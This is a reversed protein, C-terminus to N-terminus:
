IMVEAAHDPKKVKDQLTIPTVMDPGISYFKIQDKPLRAALCVLQSIEVPSLDTKFIMGSM